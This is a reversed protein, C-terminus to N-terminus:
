RSKVLQLERLHREGKLTVRVARSGRVPAIWNLERFRKFLATGLDGAIHHRRETWDLCRRAFRPQRMQTEGFCIGLQECWARGAETLQFVKPAGPIVLERERLADAIEVALRGALHSYCTRAYALGDTPASLRGESKTGRPPSIALLSEIASAVHINALRYYRHRGQEEVALLRGEILRSLHSSATQPAVGAILALQGAPLATGDLLAMLM